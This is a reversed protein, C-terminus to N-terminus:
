GMFAVEERPEVVTGQPTCNTVLPRSAVEEMQALTVTAATPPTAESTGAGEKRKKVVAEM